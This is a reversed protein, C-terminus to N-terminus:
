TSSRGGLRRYRYVEQQQLAALELFENELRKHLKQLSRLSVALSERYQEADPSALANQYQAILAGTNQLRQELEALASM